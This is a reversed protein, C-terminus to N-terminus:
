LWYSRSRGNGSLDFLKAAKEGTAIGEVDTVDQQRM